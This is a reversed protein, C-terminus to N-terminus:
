ARTLPPLTDKIEEWIANIYPLSEALKEFVFRDTEDFTEWKIPQFDNHFSSNTSVIIPPHKKGFQDATIDVNLTRNINLWAHTKGESNPVNNAPIRIDEKSCINERILYRGLYVSAYECCGDPFSGFSGKETFRNSGRVDELTRRMIQAAM